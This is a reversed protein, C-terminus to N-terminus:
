KQKSTAVTEKGNAPADTKPKSVDVSAIEELTQGSGGCPNIAQLAMIDDFFVEVPEMQLLRTDTRASYATGVWRPGDPTEVFIGAGSVGADNLMDLTYGSIPTDFFNTTTTRSSVVGSLIEQSTAKPYGIMRVQEGRHLPKRYSLVSAVKIDDRNNIYLVAIDRKKDTFLLCAPGRSNNEIGNDYLTYFAKKPEYTLEWGTDINRFKLEEARTVHANTVFYTYHDDRKYAFVTGSGLHLPTDKKFQEQVAYFAEKKVLLTQEALQELATREEPAPYHNLILPADVVIQAVQASTLNATLFGGALALKMTRLFGM